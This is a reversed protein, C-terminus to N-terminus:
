WGIEGVEKDTVVTGKTPQEPVKEELQTDEDDVEPVQQEDQEPVQQDEKDQQEEEELGNFQIEDYADVLKDENENKFTNDKPGDVVVDYEKTTPDKEGGYTKIDKLDAEAYGQEDYTITNSKNVSPIKSEEKKGEVKKDVKEVEEKDKNTKNVTPAPDGPAQLDRDYKYLFGFLALLGLGTVGSIKLFDRLTHKEKAHKPAYDENLEDCRRALAERTEVALTSAKEAENREKSVENRKGFLNKVTKFVSM